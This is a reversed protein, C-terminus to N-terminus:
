IHSLEEVYHEFANRKFVVHSGNHLVMRANRPDKAIERLKNEGIHSYVAAEEITLCLKHWIPVSYYQERKETINEM